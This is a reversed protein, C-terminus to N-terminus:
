PDGHHLARVRPLLVSPSHGDMLVSNLLFTSLSLSLLANVGVAVLFLLVSAVLFKQHLLFRHARARSTM